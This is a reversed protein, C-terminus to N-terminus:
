PRDGSKNYKRYEEPTCGTENKFVRGFYSYDNYGVMGSVTPLSLDTENLLRKAEKIRVSKVFSTITVGTHKKFIDCLYTETLFFMNALKELSINNKYNDALYEQIGAVTGNTSPEYLSDKGQPNDIPLPSDGSKLCKSLASVAEEIKERELPKLLYQFANLKIAKCAVDFDSYGSIIVVPTEIGMDRMKTILEIGSIDPMRIDTFVADPEHRIIYELADEGCSCAAAIEFGFSNWDVITKLGALAWPEDDVLLLKLM